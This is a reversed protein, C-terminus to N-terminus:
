ADFDESETPCPTPVAAVVKGPLWSQIWVAARQASDLSAYGCMPVLGTSEYMKDFQERTFFLVCSCRPKGDITIHARM